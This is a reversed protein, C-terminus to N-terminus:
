RASHRPCIYVTVGLCQWFRVFPSKFDSGSAPGVWRPDRDFGVVDPLGYQRLTDIIPPFVTEATYDEGPAVTLAVSTGTDVIDLTEV